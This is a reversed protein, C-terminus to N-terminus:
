ARAGAVLAQGPFTYSGDDGRFPAARSAMEQVVEDQASPDLARFPVALMQSLDLTEELYARIDPYRRELKVADVHVFVFGASELVQQLAGPAGLAFMGPLGPEPPSVHGLKIMSQMPVTAWPNAAPQDWVAVAARGGPRLVRRMERAAAEPDLLLMLAWRCLIADVSATPLDIWELELRMFEVNTIGLVEARGRAIDLMAESADSSVLMGAPNVLEAALFGTDGPGAALELVRQGPQLGLQRIMAVSVPMGHDRVDTARKGWGAAAKEWRELQEARFTDPDLGSDTM